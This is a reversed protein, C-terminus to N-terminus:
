LQKPIRQNFRSQRAPMRHALAKAPVVFTMAFGFREGVIANSM